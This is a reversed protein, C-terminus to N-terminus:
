NHTSQLLSAEERCKILHKTGFATRCLCLCTRAIKTVCFLCEFKTPKFLRVPRIHEMHQHSLSRETVAFNKVVGRSLTAQFGPIPFSPRVLPVTLQRSIGLASM